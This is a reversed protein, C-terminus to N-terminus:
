GWDEMAFGSPHDTKVARLIHDFLLDGERLLTVKDVGGVRVVTSHSFYFGDGEIAGWGVSGLRQTGASVIECADRFIQVPKGTDDRVAVSMLPYDTSAAIEREIFSDPIRVGITRDFSAINALFDQSVDAKAQCVVTIPGPTFHELLLATTNDVEILRHVSFYNPFALSIPDDPRGLIANVSKRAFEDAALAALSYCTDSPLLIFGRKLLKDRAKQVFSTALAGGETRFSKEIIFDPRSM